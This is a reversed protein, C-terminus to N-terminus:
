RGAAVGCPPSTCAALFPYAAPDIRRAGWIEPALDSGAFPKVAYQWVLAGDHTVEFARGGMTESVLVNGNGLLQATGLISSSFPHEKGGTYSWLMAGNTPDVEVIRSAGGPGINGLNDFLMLTGRNTLAADHARRWPGRTAWRVTGIKADLVLVADLARLNVLLDGPAAFPLQASVADGIVQITNAHFLDWCYGRDELCGEWDPAMGAGLDAYPSRALADSLWIVRQEHGDADLVAVGEDRFSAPGPPHPGAEATVPPVVGERAILVYITGDPAARVDHHPNNLYSWVLHSDRDLKVLATNMVTDDWHFAPFHREDRALALVSGDALLDYGSVQVDWPDQLAPVTFMRDLPLRWRYVPAGDPKMVVVEPGIAAVTLGPAMAAADVIRAGPPDSMKKDGISGPQGRGAAHLLMTLTAGSAAMVARLSTAPEFDLREATVGLVFGVLLIIALLAARRM